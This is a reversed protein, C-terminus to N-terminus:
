AAAWGRRGRGLEAAALARAPAASEETYGRFPVRSIPPRPRWRSSPRLHCGTASCRASCSQAGARVEQGARSVESSALALRTEEFRSSHGFLTNKWVRIQNITKTDIPVGSGLFFAFFSNAASKPILFRRRDRFHDVSVRVPSIRSQFTAHELGQALRASSTDTPQSSQLLELNRARYRTM